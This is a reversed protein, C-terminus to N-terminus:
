MTPPIKETSSSKQLKLHPNSSGSSDNFEVDFVLQHMRLKAHERCRLDMRKLAPLLSQLFQLDPDGDGGSSTSFAGVIPSDYGVNCSAFTQDDELEDDGFMVRLSNLDKVGPLRLVIILLSLHEIDCSKFTQSDELENPGFIVRLREPDNVGPFFNQTLMETKLQGITFNEFEESSAAVSFVKVTNKNIRIRVQFAMEANNM